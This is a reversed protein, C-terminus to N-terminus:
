KGISQIFCGSSGGDDDDDDGGSQPPGTPMSLAPTNEAFYEHSDANQIARNPDTRALQRAGNQGYVHDKTGAVVYFHSMEHVFTGAKSDTGYLSAPWFAADFYFTYPDNPNVHAFTNAWNTCSVYIQKNQLADYIRDFHTIIAAYRSAAYAGFWENYRRAQPRLNGPANRLDRRATLAISRAANLGANIANMQAQSCAATPAANLTVPENQGVDLIFEAENSRTSAFKALFSDVQADGTQNALSTKVKIADERYRVMYQGAKYIEYGKELNVVASIEEGAAIEIFDASQPASRKVLFGAYLVSEGDYRVDFCDSTFESEFPTGWKLIEINSDSENRLTFKLSVSLPENENVALIEINASLSPPTDALACTGIFLSAFVFLVFFRARLM